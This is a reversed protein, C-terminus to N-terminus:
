SPHMKSKALEDQLSVRKVELKPTNKMYAASPRLGAFIRREDKSVVFWEFRSTEEPRRNIRNTTQVILGRRELEHLVDEIQTLLGASLVKTPVPAFKAIIDQMYWHGGTKLLDYIQQEIRTLKGKEEHYQLKARWEERHRAQGENIRRSTRQNELMLLENIEADDGGIVRRVKSLNPYNMILTTLGVGRRPALLDDLSKLVDDVIRSDTKTPM